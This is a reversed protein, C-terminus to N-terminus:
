PIIKATYAPSNYRQLYKLVTTWNESVHFQCGGDTIEIPNQYDTWVRALVFKSGDLNKGWCLDGQKPKYKVTGIIRLDVRIPPLPTATKSPTVNWPRTATRTPSWNPFRFIAYNIGKNYFYNRVDRPTNVAPSQCYASKMVMPGVNSIFEVVAYANSGIQHGWCLDGTKPTYSAYVGDGTTWNYVLKPIVTVALSPTPTITRTYTKTSTSTITSTNTVTYTLTSTATPTRTSTKTFTRTPTKSSTWTVTFTSTPSNTVTNTSTETSTSTSTPTNTSTSTSTSTHTFTGTATETPTFTNTPTNTSTSTSSPTLTPTLTPTSTSTLTNTSTSTSTSTHTFTSTATETPTFTSTPTNTVTNTSTSTSTSTSTFTETATATPTNTSTFTFTSTPTNTSTSTFTSTATPTNSPTVTHTSTSTSTPTNTSTQTSTNTATNTVTFTETPTQTNSPTSTNSPTPTLTPTASPGVEATTFTYGYKSSAWSAREAVTITSTIECGASSFQLPAAPAEWFKVVANTGYGEIYLGWCIMDKIPTYSATVGDGTIWITIPEPVPTVAQAKWPVLALWGVFLITVLLRKM